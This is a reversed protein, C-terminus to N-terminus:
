INGTNFTGDLLFTIPLVVITCEYLSVTLSTIKGKLTRLTNDTTIDISSTIFKVTVVHLTCANVRITRADGDFLNVLGGPVILYLLANITVMNIVLLLSIGCVRGIEGARNTNFGCDLIPHVKRIVKGTALCLFARLGCCTNLILICIRSFTTFVSGLISVVLSPLTLGLSTPVNVTCAGHYVGNIDRVNGFKVGITGPGFTCIVVCVVLSTARKVNATLTTNRVNVGPFNCNFVVLPSLIVGVVYKTTLDMVSISVGNTTRFVGRFDVSTTRPVYFLFIVGACEVKFSVVRTSSAFVGLFSPVITLYIVVLILKRLVGVIVNVATTAGTVHRENTNLCCTVITGVKINFNIAVTVVLGRLPCILSLTAVTSRDVGTVFCDSM